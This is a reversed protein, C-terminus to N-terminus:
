LMKQSEGYDIYPVVFDATYGICFNINLDGNCRKKTVGYGVTYRSIKALNKIQRILSNTSIALNLVAWCQLIANHM